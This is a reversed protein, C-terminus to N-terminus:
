AGKARCISTSGCEVFLQPRHSASGFRLPQDKPNCKTLRYECELSWTRLINEPKKLILPATLAKAGMTIAL